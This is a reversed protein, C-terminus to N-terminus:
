TIFRTQSGISAGGAPQCPKTPLRSLRARAPRIDLADPGHAGRHPGRHAPGARAIARHDLRGCLGRDRRQASRPEGAAQDACPASTSRARGGHHLCQASRPVLIEHRGGRRDTWLSPQPGRYPGVRWAPHVPVGLRRFHGASGRRGGPSTEFITALQRTIPLELPAGMKTEEVRFVLEALDVCRWRLPLVENLRMGTYLGFWFADQARPTNVAAEIGTKWCPLVESPTSIKRRRNRHYKGGGALWLDVPNRLDDLDVCPRRYISRLLSIVRNAPSWGNDETLRNFRAEVDRRSIADLPRERWDAFHRAFEERYLKDTRSARKPNAAMFDEFAQELVPMRRAEAREGAPDEGRAAKVLVQRAMRRAEVASIDGHRGLVIRRNPAKRGGDGARYNVIFSKLGTPQVRVGFGTLRDDWAIWSKDAPKLAEVTRGTLSLKNLALRKSSPRTM